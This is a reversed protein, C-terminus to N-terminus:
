VAESAKRRRVVVPKSNHRAAFGAFYTPLRSSDSLLHTDRNSKRGKNMIPRTM